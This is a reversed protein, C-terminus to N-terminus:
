EEVEDVNIKMEYAKEIKKFASPEVKELATVALELAKKYQYDDYFHDEAQRLAIALDPTQLRYRNAYQIVHEVLHANEIMEDAKETLHELDEQAVQWEHNVSKMNLPKEELKQELKSISAEMHECLALYDEPKGPLRERDLRRNLNLIARRMRDADERAELEDKRLSRLEEAFADQELSITSVVADIEKLADEAASYAIKVESLRETVTALQEKQLELQSAIKLYSALDEETVHYTQKVEKIQEALADSVDLQKELKAEVVIRNEKVFHRAEVEHELTDYFLNIETHLEAVGSEVAELEGAVIKDKLDTVRNSMRDLEAALQLQELFYGQQAMEDYGAQLKGMEDPLVVDSERLLVPIKELKVGLKELDHQVNLVVERAELYDGQDTLMDFRNLNEAITDLEGEVSHLADGLKYGNSLVERRLTTFKDKAMRIDQANREESAILEKLGRLIQKMQTDIEHIVQEVQNEMQTAQRFQYRDTHQEAGLIYEELNPFLKTAIDDWSDRWSEFLDETQGTLRLKKVKTLEDIVPREMLEIKQEELANIRQYHKKKMIYGVAFVVAVIVVFGVLYWVFM